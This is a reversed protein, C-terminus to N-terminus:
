SRFAGYIFRITALDDMVGTHKNSDNIDNKWITETALHPLGSFARIYDGGEASGNPWRGLASFTTVIGDGEATGIEAGGPRSFDITMSMKTSEDRVAFVSYYVNRPLPVENLATLEPNDPTNPGNRFGFPDNRSQRWWKWVPMLVKYADRYPNPYSALYSGLNPANVLVANKVSVGNSQVLYKRVVLGGKSHGIVNARSAFGNYAVSGSIENALHQACDELGDRNRDYHAYFINGYVAGPTWSWPFRKYGDGLWRHTRLNARELNELEDEMVHFPGRPTENPDMSDNSYNLPSIGPALVIPLLLAATRVDKALVKGRYMVSATVTILTDDSIYDAGKQRLPMVAIPFPDWTDNNTNVSLGAAFPITRTNPALQFFTQEFRQLAGRHRLGDITIKLDMRDGENGARLTRVELKGAAMLHVASILLKVNTPPKSPPDYAVPVFRIADFGITTTLDGEGTIDELSVRARDSSWFHYQGLGVWRGNNRRQNVYVDAYSDDHFVTYHASTTTSKRSPVYAELRYIGDRTLHASWTGINDRKPALKYNQTWVMNGDSGGSGERHWYRKTGETTFGGNTDQVTIANGLSPSAQAIGVVILCMLFM